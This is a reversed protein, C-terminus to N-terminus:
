DRRGRRNGQRRPQRLEPHAHADASQKFKLLLRTLESVEEAPWDSVFLRFRGIGIANLRDLEQEGAPTLRVLIARRDAASQEVVVHGADELAQVHRTALSQHIDMEVALDSPRVPQLAKIMYLATLRSADPIRKRALELGRSVTSLAGALAGVTEDSLKAVLCAYM